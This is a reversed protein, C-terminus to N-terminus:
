RANVGVFQHANIVRLTDTGRFAGAFDPDDEAQLVRFM